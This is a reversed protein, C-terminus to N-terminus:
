FLGVRQYNMIGGNKLFFNRVTTIIILFLGQLVNAVKMFPIPTVNQLLEVITLDSFDEKTLVM